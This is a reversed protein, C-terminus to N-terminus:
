FYIFLIFLFFNYSLKEFNTMMGIIDSFDHFQNWDAMPSLFYAIIYIM